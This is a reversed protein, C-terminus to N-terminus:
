TVSFVGCISQNPSLGIRASMPVENKASNHATSTGRETRRTAAADTETTPKVAPM